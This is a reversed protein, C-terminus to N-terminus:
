LELVQQSLQDVLLPRRLHTKRKATKGGEEGALVHKRSGCGLMELHKLPAKGVRVSLLDRRKFCM